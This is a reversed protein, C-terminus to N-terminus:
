FRAGRDRRSTGWIKGLLGCPPVVRSRRRFMRGGTGDTEAPPNANEANDEIDKRYARKLSVVIWVMAGLALWGSMMRGDSTRLILAAAGGFIM